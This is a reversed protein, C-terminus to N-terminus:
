VKMACTRYLLGRIPRCSGFPAAFQKYVEETAVPPDNSICTGPYLQFIPISQHFSSRSAWQFEGQRVPYVIILIIIMAPLKTWYCGLVGNVVKERFYGGENKSLQWCGFKLVVRNSQPGYIILNKDGLCHHNRKCLGVQHFIKM